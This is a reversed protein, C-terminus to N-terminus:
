RAERLKYGNRALEVEIERVTERGVNKVRLLDSRSCQVLGSITTVNYNALGNRARVSLRLREVSAFRDLLEASGITVAAVGRCREIARILGEVDACDLELHVM